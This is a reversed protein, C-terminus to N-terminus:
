FHMFFFRECVNWLQLLDFVIFYFQFCCFFCFLFIFFIFRLVIYFMLIFAFSCLVFRFCFLMFSLIIFCFLLLVVDFLSILVVVVLIFRWEELDHLSVAWSLVCVLDEYLTDMQEDALLHCIGGTSQVDRANWLQSWHRMFIEYCKMWLVLLLAFTGVFVSRTQTVLFFFLDECMRWSLCLRFMWAFVYIPHTYM